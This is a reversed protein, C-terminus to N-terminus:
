ACSPGRLPLPGCLRRLPRSRAVHPPQPRRHRWRPRARVAPARQPRGPQGLRSPTVGSRPYRRPTRPALHSPFVLSGGPRQPLIEPGPDGPWSRWGPARGPREAAGRLLRRPRWVWGSRWTFTTRSLKELETGSRNKTALCTVLSTVPGVYDGNERAEAPNQSTSAFRSTSTSTQLCRLTRLNVISWIKSLWKPPM